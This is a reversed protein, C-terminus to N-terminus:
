QMFVRARHTSPSASANPIGRTINGESDEFQTVIEVENGAIDKRAWRLQLHYGMGMLKASVQPFQSTPYHWDSALERKQAGKEDREFRYMEVHITGERAVGKDGGANLFIRYQLGEPDRDGGADASIWPRQDFLCVVSQIRAANSGRSYRKPQEPTPAQSAATKDRHRFPTVVWPHGVFRRVYSCM